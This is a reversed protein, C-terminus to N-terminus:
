RRLRRRGVAPTGADEVAGAQGSGVAMVADRAGGHNVGDRGIVLGEPWRRSLGAESWVSSASSPGRRLREGAAADLRPAVPEAAERDVEFATVADVRGRRGSEEGM